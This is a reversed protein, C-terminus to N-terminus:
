GCTGCTVSAARPCLPLTSLTSNWLWCSHSSEAPSSPETRTHSRTCFDQWATSLTRRKRGKWTQLTEEMGEMGEMGTRGLRGRGEMGEMGKWEM